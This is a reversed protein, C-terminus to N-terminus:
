AYARRPAILSALTPVDAAHRAMALLVVLAGTAYMGLGPTADALESIKVYSVLTALLMVDPMAWPATARVLRAATGVWRPAPTRLVGAATTVALGLYGAPFALTFLAVLTGIIPGGALWMRAASLPLSVSASRGSECLAMLPTTLAVAFAIGATALVALEAQVDHGTRAVLLPTGCRACRAEQGQHLAVAEHLWDCATCALWTM